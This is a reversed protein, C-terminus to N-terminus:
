ANSQAEPSLNVRASRSADSDAVGRQQAVSCNFADFSASPPSQLGAARQNSLRFKVLYWLAKLGDRWNIKKGQEVTRGRYGVPVESIRWSGARVIQASIQVECGFDNCTINLADNVESSFMKYCTEVDSLWTGYLLSFIASILWNAGAQWVSIFTARGARRGAFRSGYVVDARKQIAILDYMSHWDAPDYELDADQVVIVQGTAAAFGTRLGAGKGRNREHYFARVVLEAEGSQHLWTLQGQSDVTIGSFLRKGEPIERLLWERTGDSSGDDVLLIEKPVCPLVQSVAALVRPLTELENLIPIVISLM